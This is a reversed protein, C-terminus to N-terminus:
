NITKVIARVFVVPKPKEKKVYAKTWEVKPQPPEHKVFVLDVKKSKM